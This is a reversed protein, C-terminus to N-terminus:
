VCETEKKRKREKKRESASLSTEKQRRSGRDRKEQYRKMLILNRSKEQNDSNRKINLFTYM